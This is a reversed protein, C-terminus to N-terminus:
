KKIATMVARTPSPYGELTRSQDVPDLFDELSEFTMWDTRRQEEYTTTTVDVLRIDAFGTRALWRELMEPSPIFWVNRMKAYRDKPVLVDAGDTEIVLTELVVQGGSRLAGHITQLHDIPSTRHYLVGMSFVVDFAELGPPLETDTIPVVFHREPPGVYRRFVEFQMVYLLTPDCGLVFEAGADLMKWGYYGNGCGIDLVSRGRLNIAHSLRNWKLDSRWETDIDLGFLEFPGKRWPHLELLTARLPGLNPRSDASRVTVADGTADLWADAVAPLNELADMWKSLNGHYGVDLRECCLRDVVPILDDMGHARLQCYLPQLDLLNVGGVGGQNGSDIRLQFVPVM